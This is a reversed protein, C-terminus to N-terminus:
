RAGSPPTTRRCFINERFFIHLFFEAIGLKKKTTKLKKLMKSKRNKRKQNHKIMKNKNM